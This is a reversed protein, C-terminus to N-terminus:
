HRWLVPSSNRKRRRIFVFAGGCILLFWLPADTGVEIYMQKSMLELGGASPPVLRGAVYLGPTGNPLRYQLALGESKVALLVSFIGAVTVFAIGLLMKGIKM